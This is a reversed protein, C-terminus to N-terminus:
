PRRGRPTEGSNTGIIIGLAAAPRIAIRWPAWPGPKLTELAQAVPECAIPSAARIITRPSASTTTAPRVSADREGPQAHCRELAHARQRRGTM